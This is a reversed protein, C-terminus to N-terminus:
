RGRASRGPWSRIGNERRAPRTRELSHNPLEPPSLRYQGYGRWPLKWGPFERTPGYWIGTVLTSPLVAYGVGDQEELAVSAEIDEFYVAMATLPSEPVGVPGVHVYQPQGYLSILEELTTTQSAKFGIQVVVSTARDVVLIANACSLFREQNPEDHLTCPGLFSSDNAIAFADQESTTGPLIGGYCPPGCPDQSLLGGDWEATPTLLGGDASSCASAAVLLLTAAIHLMRHLSSM